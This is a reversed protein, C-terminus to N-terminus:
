FILISAKLFEEQEWTAEDESHNSWQVKYFRNTTRRTVRDKRDIIKIPHEPYTLDSELQISDSDIAETPVRLCKKLQSVHFINHIASFKAPLNLRYAVPGCREVIPYPGIYRPALKGKVGFRQVGKWPSVKLYVHDGVKFVLPDTRKDAYSKQRSQAIKLNEQILRVQEEAEQVMDPGFITREGAESWNLPTRCRRGYLAEFPAMKISEQYSNNYSFEALPLCQDWKQPYALVCARLMDELIQNIRETQGDTQPHYASSRILHTGLSAHLQEWFHAVFQTGRDSIITKPVGHLCLICNIYLEAYKKARHITNVPLFHASKTLRDVVVWISDYGKQTRPLGVIFDMSIDEWKWESINLPQLTGAPRLYSAKVRRCIDCESVYKAIEREM